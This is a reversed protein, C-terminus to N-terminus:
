KPKPVERVRYSYLIKDGLDQHIGLDDLAKEGSAPLAKGVEFVIAEGNWSGVLTESLFRFSVNPKPVSVFIVERAHWPVSDGTESVPLIDHVELSVELQVPSGHGVLQYEITNADRIKVDARDLADCGHLRAGAEVCDYRPNGFSEIAYQLPVAMTGSSEAPAFDSGAGLKVVIPPNLAHTKLSPQASTTVLSYSGVATQEAPKADSEPAQGYAVGLAVALFAPLLRFGNMVCWGRRSFYCRAGILANTRRLLTM